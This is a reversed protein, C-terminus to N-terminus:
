SWVIDTTIRRLGGKPPARPRWTALDRPPPHLPSSSGEDEHSLRVMHGSDIYAQMFERYAAAFTADRAMRRHLHALSACASSESSGLLRGADPKLPLRVVYQGSRDRHHEMFLQECREDAPSPRHVLPLDEVQWFQQLVALLQRHWPPESINATMALCQHPRQDGPGCSRGWITWGAVTNQAILGDRRQLGTMMLHQTVGAGLLLDVPGPHGFRPDALNLQSWMSSEHPAVRHYPMTIELRKLCLARIEIPSSHGPLHLHLRATYRSRSAIGGGVAAVATRNDETPAQLRAVIRDSILTVEPCADLLTRVPLPRSDPASIM